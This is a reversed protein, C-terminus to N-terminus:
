TLMSTFGAYPNAVYRDVASNIRASLRQLGRAAMRTNTIFENVTDALESKITLNSSRVVIILDRITLEAHKVNLTLSAGAVVQDMLDDLVINQIKVLKPFDAREMVSVAHSPTAVDCFTLHAFIPLNCPSPLSVHLTHMVLTM